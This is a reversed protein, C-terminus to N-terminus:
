PYPMMKEREPRTKAACVKNLCTFFSNILASCTM